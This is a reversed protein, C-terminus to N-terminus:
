PVDFADVDLNASTMGHATGDFWTQWTAGNRYIVDEDQVAGLATVTTDGSFSLYYHTADTRDFGDVNATAPVGVTTADVVRAFSNGGTWLYIDSDDAAGTVGPPNLNTDTSFYLGTADVHIADLDTTALGRVSGDFYLQWSAGNRYVVDEDQVTGLGPLTTAGSFSLYFHTADVASYGDVNASTPIGVTTADITRSYSVGGWTYLDANDATGAVGPPNTDGTTSFVLPGRVQVVTSATVSWNGAADRVRVFVTYNGDSLTSVNVAASLSWPGTGAITMATGNGVGPDAGLFWEARDVATLNDSATASLNVTAVGIAPTPLASLGSVTPRVKDVVLTTSTFPGWNGAVDKAHIFLSHSGTTMAQVTALPIDTYAAESPDTFAGDSPALGVGTGNGGITDVFLEGSSISTNVGSTLPDALTARVRVAATASNFPITGNNPSVAASAGTSNPGTRDVTLTATVPDGWNGNADRSHISVSHAGAPLAALTSQPIVGDISSVPAATQVTMPTGTGNPGVTDIFFEAGQITSGGGATDDGTASVAVSTGTAGNTAPPTLTPSSTVPGIVDGATLLISTYPGWNGLADRSRVYAVHQGPPLAVPATVAETAANFTGDSAAMATPSAALSDLRVEAGAVNAGGTATEDATGTLVGAAYALGNTVPGTTDTAGGTGTVAVLSLMGGVGPRNTNHLSLGADYVPLRRNTASSPLTVIADASQGPGFTDAVHRRSLDTSGASTLQSGDYGVIRQDAGLVAMSHYQQGANVYRLLLRAGSSATIPATDPHPRGNVLFYRPAYKRMDFAAPNAANNLAPDIESLVLVADTDFGTSPDDYAQTPTTSRVVLAGYLGMAAQHQTNPVLGSEYLYTGPRSATFTYTRTDTPSPALGTTDPVISQGPFQLSTTEALQNHLRVHVVDGEDVTLVPGGPATVPGGSTTYGWVAVTQGGAPLTTTGAAAYLDITIEAGEAGLAPGVLLGLVTLFGAGVISFAVREIRNTMESGAEGTM